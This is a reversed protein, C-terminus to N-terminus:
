VAQRASPGAVSALGSDNPWTMDGVAPSQQGREVDDSPVCSSLTEAADKSPGGALSKRGSVRVEAVGHGVLEVHRVACDDPSVPFRVHQGSEVTLRAGYKM